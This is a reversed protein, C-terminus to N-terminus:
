ERKLEIGSNLSEELMNNGIGILFKVTRIVNYPIVGREFSMDYEMKIFRSGDDRSQYMTKALIRSINRQNVWALCKDEAVDNTIDYSQKFIILSREKDFECAMLIGKEFIVIFEDDERLESFTFVTNFLDNLEALTVDEKELIKGAM